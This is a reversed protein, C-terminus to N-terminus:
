VILMADGYSYFRYRERIALDYAERVLDHGGFQCVLVLLTSRPLHFNTLLADVARFVHGPRIYLETEGSFPQLRGSAAASELLRVCTTGVAVIRGGAARCQELTEVAAATIEGWEPLMHHEEVTRTQIPRFTGIGVHLTVGVPVVGERNLRELLPGTFHLGATPAAVSGAVKAFVTQYRERDADEMEGRRIYHPLPVRGVRELTALADESVSPVARWVDAEGPRVLLLTLDDYGRNDIITVEDGTALKGRCRCLLRWAGDPDAGLFLGEWRGGTQSRRGVLRAPIVKSTNLVLADHRKLIEPLDRVHRHQFTGAARDVVLLRADSRKPLPHQAILEPPLHYDYDSLDTM